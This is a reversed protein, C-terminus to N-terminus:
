SYNCGDRREGADVRDFRCIKGAADLAHDLGRGPLHKGSGIDFQEIGLSTEREHDDALRLAAVGHIIQRGPIVRHLADAVTELALRRRHSQRGVFRRGGIDREGVVLALRHRVSPNPSGAADGAVLEIVLQLRRNQGLPGALLDDLRLTALAVEEVPQGLHAPGVGVPLLLDGPHAFADMFLAPRDIQGILFFLDHHIIQRLIEGVGRRLRIGVAAQRSRRQLTSGGLIDRNIERHRIGVRRQVVDGDIRAADRPHVLEVFVLESLEIALVYSNVSILGGAPVPFIPM